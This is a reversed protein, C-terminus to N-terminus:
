SADKEDGTVPSIMLLVEEVARDEVQRVTLTVIGATIRDGVEPLHGLENLIYGGITYADPSVLSLNLRDNLYTISVDGRVCYSNEDLKRIPPKESEDFEDQVEGFIEELIDERTIMGVTGGHEDFVIAMYSREKNLISWVDDLFSSEHVFAAERVISSVDTVKGEYSLQFLDKLHVFGVIHDIDGSYVPIRTYDSQAAIRLIESVPSSIDAAIIRMRPVVVEGVQLKSFRFASELLQHEQEALLGGARSQTLLLQIEEPSHVHKHGEAHHVGLLRMLLVGSGNLIVILPKLIFDASWRMPIATWLATREPYQIAITKPVLEGLVVQLTTLVLLVIIYAVGAAALESVFPLSALLPEILPAIERQAYIGLVVSSLTIGVQSAAIYNDLKHHDELVPLIMRALRNGSNAMQVIRSKRASVTSFEGAVYLANLAIMLTVTIIISILTLLM